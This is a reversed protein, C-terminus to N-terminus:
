SGKECIVLQTLPKIGQFPSPGISISLTTEKSAECSHIGFTQEQVCKLDGNEVVQTPPRQNPKGPDHFDYAVLSIASKPIKLKISGPGVLVSSRCTRMHQEDSDDSPQLSNLWDSYRSIDVFFTMAKAAAVCPNKGKPSPHVYSTVGVLTTAKGDASLEFLPAGSDGNCAGADALKGKVAVPNYEGCFTDLGAGEGCEEWSTSFKGDLYKAIQKPGDDYTNDAVYGSDEPVIKFSHVGYGVTFHLGGETLQGMKVGSMDPDNVLSIVALDANRTVGLKTGLHLPVYDDMIEAKSYADFIGVGPFVIKFKLESMRRRCAQAYTEEELKSSFLEVPCACHAATLFKDSGILAGSCAETREGPGKILLKGVNFFQSGAVIFGGRNRKAIWDREDATSDDLISIEHVKELVIPTSNEQSYATSTAASATVLTGTLFRILSM